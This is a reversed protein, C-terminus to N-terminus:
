HLGLGLGPSLEGGGFPGFHLGGFTDAGAAGLKVSLDGATQDVVLVREFGRCFERIATPELPWTMAVKFISVGLEAAQEPSRILKIGVGRQGVDPKLIYPYKLQLRACLNDLSSLRAASSDGTVLAAEATVEPSTAFLDLLTSSKSEGVLGGSFIGPNAATPLSLGRYKVALWLCYIVVPPYFLWAPWFEWYRWRDIAAALRRHLESNSVAEPM